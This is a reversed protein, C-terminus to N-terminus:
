VLLFLIAAYASIGPGFRLGLYQYASTITGRRFFPVFLYTAVIVVVPFALNPLFRIWTTKFADAPYALFTISSIMSGVLSIGIAWGPFSRGGLFYDDTNKNKRAVYLGLAIIDAFYLALILLDLWHLTM